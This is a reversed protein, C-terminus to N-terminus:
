TSPGACPRRPGCCIAPRPTSCARPKGTSGSTYLVFLPHEADVWDPECHEPQAGAAEHLWADRAADWDIRAGTRRYVFVRRVGDCGGMALAEDAIRKLPLTKGGRVQEDATILLRAGIDVIRENLSKASFGGFVVSHIAGIRNCAQMAVIAEVSMPLYIVVRDGRQIGCAKMANALQCVRALLARYSIPTVAGDDAEFVIATREGLGSAVHRDLCNFSANLRGDGFWRYLACPYRGAGPHVAQAM